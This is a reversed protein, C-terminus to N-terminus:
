HETFGPVTIACLGKVPGTLRGACQCPHRHIQETIPNGPVSFHPGQEAEM